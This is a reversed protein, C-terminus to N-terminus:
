GSVSLSNRLRLHINFEKGVALWSVFKLAHAKVICL